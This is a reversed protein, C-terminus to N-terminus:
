NFKRVLGIVQIIENCIIKIKSNINDEEFLEIFIKMLQLVEPQEKLEKQVLQYNNSGLHKLTM